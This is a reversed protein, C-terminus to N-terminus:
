LFLVLGGAGSICVELLVLGVFHEGTGGCGGCAFAERVAVPQLVFFAELAAGSSSNTGTGSVM